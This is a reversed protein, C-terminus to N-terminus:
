RKLEELSSVVQIGGNHSYFDDRLNPIVVGIKKIYRDPSIPHGQEECVEDITCFFNLIGPDMPEWDEEESHRYYVAGIDPKSEMLRMFTKISGAKNIETGGLIHFLFANQLLSYAKNFTLDYAVKHVEEPPVIQALTRGKHDPVNITLYRENVHLLETAADLCECGMQFHAVVNAYNPNQGALNTHRIKTDYFQRLKTIVRDLDEIHTKDFHKKLYPGEGDTKTLLTPKQQREYANAFENMAKLFLDSFESSLASREHYDLEIPEVNQPLKELPPTQKYEDPELHVDNGLNFVELFDVRLADTLMRIFTDTQTVSETLGETLYGFFKSYDEDKSSTLAEELSSNGHALHELSAAISRPFRLTSNGIAGYSNLHRKLDGASSRIEEYLGPEYEGSVDLVHVLGSLRHFHPQIREGIERILDQNIDM